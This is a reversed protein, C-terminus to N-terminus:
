SIMRRNEYYKNNEIVVTEQCSVVEFMVLTALVALIIIVWQDNTLKM